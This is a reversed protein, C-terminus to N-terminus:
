TSSSAPEATKRRSKSPTAPPADVAVPEQRVATALLAVLQQLQAEDLRALPTNSLAAEIIASRAQLGDETLLVVRSRRDTPDVAREVLGRDTLQNVVFTLNPANCFLRAAMTKMSPPAEDPDIAWLAQATAGTLKHARLVEDLRDNTQAVVSNMAVVAVELLARSM